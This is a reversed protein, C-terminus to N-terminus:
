RRFTLPREVPRPRSERKFRDRYCWAYLWLADRREADLDAPEVVEREVDLLSRHEDLAARVRAQLTSVETM